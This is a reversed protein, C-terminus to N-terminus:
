RGFTARLAAAVAQARDAVQLKVFVSHLHNKVTLESIRLDRAIQRNTAGQTLLHLVQGERRTLGLLEAYREHTEPHGAEGGPASGVHQELASIARALGAM